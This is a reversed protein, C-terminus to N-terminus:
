PFLKTMKTKYNMKLKMTTKLKKMEMRTQCDNFKLCYGNANNLKVKCIMIM